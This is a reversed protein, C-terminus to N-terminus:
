GLPQAAIVIGAGPKPMEDLMIKKCTMWCGQLFLGCVYQIIPFLKNKNL